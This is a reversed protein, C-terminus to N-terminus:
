GLPPQDGSAPVQLQRLMEGSDFASFAEYIEGAAFHAVLTGPVSIPRGTAAIDGFPGLQTGSFLYRAAVSEGEALIEEVQFIIDPFAHRFLQVREKLGDRGSTTSRDRVTGDQSFPADLVYESAYIEDIVDLHGLNLVEDFHRRVARKNEDIHGAPLGDM